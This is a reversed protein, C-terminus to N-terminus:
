KGTLLEVRELRDELAKVTRELARVRGVLDSIDGGEEGTILKKKETESAGLLHPIQDIIEQHVLDLQFSHIQFNVMKFVEGMKDKLSIETMHTIPVEAEVVDDLKM